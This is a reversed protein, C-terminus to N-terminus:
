VHARGIEASRHPLRGLSAVTRVTIPWHVTRDQPLYAILRALEHKPIGTLATEDLRVSGSRVPLIGALARLLTSKGAGNQGIIGCIRGGAFSVSVNELVLRDRLAVDINEAALKM